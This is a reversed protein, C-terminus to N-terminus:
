NKSKSTVVKVVESMEHIIIDYDDVFGDKVM